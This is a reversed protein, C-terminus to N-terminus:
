FDQWIIGVDPVDQPLHKNIRKEWLCQDSKKHNKTHQTIESQIYEGNSYQTIVSWTKNFEQPRKLFFFFFLKNPEPQLNQGAKQPKHKCYELGKCHIQIWKAFTGCLHWASVQATKQGTNLEWLRQNQKPDSEYIHLGPSYSIGKERRGGRKQPRRGVNDQGM